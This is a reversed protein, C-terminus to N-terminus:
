EIAVFRVGSGDGANVLLYNTDAESYAAIPVVTSFVHWTPIGTTIGGDIGGSLILFPVDAEVDAIRLAWWDDLGDATFDVGTREVRLDQDVQEGQAQPEAVARLRKGMGLIVQAALGIARM